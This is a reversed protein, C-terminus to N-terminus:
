SNEIWKLLGRDDNLLEILTEVEEQTKSGIPLYRVQESWLKEEKNHSQFETVSILLGYAQMLKSQEVDAKARQFKQSLGSYILLVSLDHNKVANRVTRIADKVRGINAEEDFLDDIELHECIKAKLMLEASYGALYFAGDYKGADCLIGAEELRTKSLEKIESATRM